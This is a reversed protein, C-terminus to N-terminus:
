AREDANEKVSLGPGADYRRPLTSIATSAIHVGYTLSEGLPKGLAHAALFAANFVDGAGITDIVSVDPAPAQWQRGDADLGLAGAPGRKVIVLAGAPMLSRLMSAAEEPSAKGSLATAEVENLLLCASRSLWNRAAECNADTWGDLPWGTDLAVRIDHADALNFLADYQTTLADTLFSGCVLLTGGALAEWNLMARVQPWDLAPLHGRTTFFTREGGPHTIGISLTTGVPAVPWAASHPAFAERLWIGFQDSGINAAFQYDLGLASWVLASNGAAGGVRLEDHDVIIETGPTPWPTAPGMILDVNVNGVVALPHM